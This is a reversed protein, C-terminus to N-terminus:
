VYPGNVPGLKRPPSNRLDSCGKWPRRNRGCGHWNYALFTLRRPLWLRFHSKRWKLVELRQFLVQPDGYGESAWHTSSDRLAIHVKLPAFEAVTCARWLRVDCHWYGGDTICAFPPLCNCQLHTVLDALLCFVFDWRFRWQANDCRGKEARSHSVLRCVVAEEYSVRSAQFDSGGKSAGEGCSNM